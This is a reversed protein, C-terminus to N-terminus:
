RGGLIRRGAASKKFEAYEEITMANIQEATPGDGPQDNNDNGAPRTPLQGSRDSLRRAVSTSIREYEQKSKVIAADIAEKSSGTVMGPIIADGADAIAKRKYEELEKLELEKRLAMMEANSKEQAAQHQATIAALKADLIKELAEDSLGADGGNPKGEDNNDSKQLKELKTKYEAVAEEIKKDVDAKTSEKEQKLKEIQAYLKDKEERRTSEKAQKLLEDIDKELPKAEELAKIYDNTLTNVDKTAENLRKLAEQDEKNNELLQKAAEMAQRATELDSKIKQLDM